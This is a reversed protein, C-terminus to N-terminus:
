TGPVSKKRLTQVISTVSPVAVVLKTSKLHLVHAASGPKGAATAISAATTTSERAVSKSTNSMHGSKKRYQANTRKLFIPLRLFLKRRM